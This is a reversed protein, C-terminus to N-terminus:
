RKRRLHIVIYMVWSPFPFLRDEAKGTEGGDEGEYKRLQSVTGPRAEGTM